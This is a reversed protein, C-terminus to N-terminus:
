VATLSNPILVTGVAVRQSQFDFHDILMILAVRTQLRRDSKLQHGSCPVIQNGRSCGCIPRLLHNGVAKQM